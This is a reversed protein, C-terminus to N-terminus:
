GKLREEVIKYILQVVADTELLVQRNDFRLVVLGLSRLYTDRAYDQVAAVTEFHQGGDVEIVLSARAAYFDVVYPGIPKQRYFQVGLLQKGKLRQWLKLESETMAKRLKRAPRKLRHNYPLM